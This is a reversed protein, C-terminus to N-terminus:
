RYIYININVQNIAKVRQIETQIDINGSGMKLMFTNYGQAQKEKILKIDQQPTQDSFPWLLGFSTHLAGGFLEYIPVGLHKGKLDWLAIDIAAKALLNGPLVKDLKKNLLSINLANEGICAPGLYRRLVVDYCYYCCCCVYLCVYM